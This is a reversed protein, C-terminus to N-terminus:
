PVKRRLQELMLEEIEKRRAREARWERTARVLLWIQIALGLLLGTGRGLFGFVFVIWFGVFLAAAVKVLVM